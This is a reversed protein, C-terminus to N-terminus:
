CPCALLLVKCWCFGGTTLQRHRSVCTSRHLSQLVTQSNSNHQEVISRNCAEACRLWSSGHESQRTGAASCLWSRRETWPENKGRSAIIARTSAKSRHIDTQRDTVLRHEISVASRFSSPKLCPLKRGGIRCQTLLFDPYRCFYPYKGRSSRAM